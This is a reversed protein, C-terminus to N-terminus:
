LKLREQYLHRIQAVTPDTSNRVIDFGLLDRLNDLRKETWLAYAVCVIEGVAVPPYFEDVIKKTDDLGMYCELLLRRALPKSQALPKLFSVAKDYRKSRVLAEGQGLASAVARSTARQPPGQITFEVASTLSSPFQGPGWIPQNFSENHMRRLHLKAKFTSTDIQFLNYSRAHGTPLEGPGACLSGASIVTIKRNDGFRFREDIFQPRHQHGHFGISFGNDILVQLIDSDMYDSQIPSGSTNHHWVALLLRNTYQGQRLKSGAEALCDPCIVGRENLPDNNYCSSFAALAVGYQPYDFIDYQQRPELSYVRDSQYFRTYFTCFADLRALYWDNNTVEYLCLEQWSWRLKSDPVRLQQVYGGMLQKTKPDTPDLPLPKLSHITHYFSIDHNGPVIIVRERDGNVFSNALRVLFDEAQEYQHRLEATPDSAESSIGHVLDGSIVILDPDGIIPDEEQYRDRDRELSNLLSTNSIPHAPNRHLDSMHLITLLAM